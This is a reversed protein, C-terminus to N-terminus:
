HWKTHDLDSHTTVFCTPHQRGELCGNQSGFGKIFTNPLQKPHSLETRIKRAKCRKDKDTQNLSKVKDLDIDGIKKVQSGPLLLKLREASFRDPVVTRVNATSNRERLATRMVSQYVTEHPGAKFIAERDFRLGELIKIHKPTRNTAASYYIATYKRYDNM